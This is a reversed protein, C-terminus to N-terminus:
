THLIERAGNEMINIKIIIAEPPLIACIIESWEVVAIGGGFLADEGGADCFEDGGSLRYADIHYFMSKDAEYENIITYTPSTIIEKVGLAFAIGKSFVTKGAGLPAELAVIDGAELLRGLTEGAAFTEESSNSIFKTNKYPFVGRKTL